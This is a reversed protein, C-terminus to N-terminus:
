DGITHYDNFNICVVNNATPVENYAHAHWPPTGNVRTRDPHKPPILIRSCIHTKGIHYYNNNWLINCPM